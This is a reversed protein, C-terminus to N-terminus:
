GAPKLVFPYSVIVVGGQPKTFQWRRVADAICKEGTHNALTSSEVLSSMVQGMGGIAFKVVVRGNLSSDRTLEKEYCFKVENMHQRIVRRILEKDLSGIVNPQGVTWDPAKARHEVLKATSPHLGYGPTGGSRGITGLSGLGVTGDGTGDSGRGVGVIGMGGPGYADAVETGTLNSMADVAANGLASQQAVLANLATLSGSRLLGLVGASTAAQKALEAKMRPDPNNKPGASAYMAKVKVPADTKGMKGSPGKHAKGGAKEIRQKEAKLWPAEEDRQEPAKVMFRVLQDNSFSDLALSRPDPPISFLVGLLMAAGALVGGTYSQARWDVHMPVPYQRPRAVSRVLFNCSEFQLRLQGGEPLSLAYGGQVGEAPRALGGERLESLSTPKGQSLSPAQLEGQMGDTFVVEYATGNSRVLPFRVLPLREAAVHFTAASDSGITFENERRESTARHLGFLLAGIGCFLLGGAAADQGHGAASRSASPATIQAEQARKESVVHTYSNAFLAGVGLLSLAAGGLIGKTLRSTRGGAPNDLHRVAMVADDFVAAVEIARAGDQTEVLQSIQVPVPPAAVVAQVSESTALHHSSAFEVTKQTTM